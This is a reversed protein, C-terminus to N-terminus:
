AAQSSGPSQESGSAAHPRNDAAMMARCEKHVQRAASKAAHRGQLQRVMEAVRESEIGPIREGIIRRLTKFAAQLHADVTRVSIGLETAVERRSKDDIYLGWVVESQQITLPLLAEMMEFVITVEDFREGEGVAAATGMELVEPDPRGADEAGNRNWGEPLKEHAWVDPDQDTEVTAADVRTFLLDEEVAARHADISANQIATFILKTMREDTPPPVLPDLRRGFAATLSCLVTGLVDEARRRGAKRIASALFVSQHQTFVRGLRDRWDDGQPSSAHLDNNPQNNPGNESM